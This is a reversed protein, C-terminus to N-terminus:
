AEKWPRWIHRIHMYWCTFWKKANTMCLCLALIWLYLHLLLHASIFAGRKTQQNVQSSINCVHMSDELPLIPAPFLMEKSSSSEMWPSLNLNSYSLWSSQPIQASPCLFITLIHAPFHSYFCGEPDTCLWSWTTISCKLM